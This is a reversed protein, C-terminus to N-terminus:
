LRAPDFSRSTMVIEAQHHEGCMEEILSQIRKAFRNQEITEYARAVAEKTQEDFLFQKVFAPADEIQEICAGVKQRLVLDINAEEWFIPVRTRDILIPLKMQQAENITGPGPKTLLLDSVAFLEGVKDTFPIIEITNTPDAEITKIKTALHESRGTCVLLHVNLPVKALVSAYEFISKAGMGGMMILVVNKEKPIGYAQRLDKKSKTHFFDPRLPLGITEIAEEPVRCDLLRKKSTPLDHGITVKFNEVKRKELAFVWNKLDNDTTIMLFPIARTRAAESAPYNTYPIVSILIEPKKEDIHREIMKQLKKERNRFLTEPFTRVMFNIVRTLNKALLFNYIQEGSPVKWFRLDKIPYVVDIEYDEGLLNKLTNAAAIHGYGGLSSLVLIKKKNM